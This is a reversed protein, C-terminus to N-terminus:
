RVEAIKVNISLAASDGRRLRFIRNGIDGELSYFNETLGWEQAPTSELVFISRSTIPGVTRPPRVFGPQTIMIHGASALGGGGKIINGAGDVKGFIYTKDGDLDDWSAVFGRQSYPFYADIKADPGLDRFRIGLDTWPRKRKVHWLFNGVFGNCDLGLAEDAYAQPDPALGWHHALQLVIQCHEPAGKGAFCYRAMTLMDNPPENENPSKGLFPLQGGASSNLRAGHTFEVSMTVNLGTRKKFDAEAQDQAPDLYTVGNVTDVRLRTNVGNKRFASRFANMKDAKYGGYRVPPMSRLRYSNVKFSKEGGNKLPIVIAEYRDKYEMPTM